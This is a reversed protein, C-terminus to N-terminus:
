SKRVGIVLEAETLRRRYFATDWSQGTLTGASCTGCVQCAESCHNLQASSTLTVGFNFKIMTMQFQLCFLMDFPIINWGWFLSHAIIQILVTTNGAMMYGKNINNQLEAIFISNNGYQNFWWHKIKRDCYKMQNCFNIFYTESDPGCLTALDGTM